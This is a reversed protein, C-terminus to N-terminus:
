YRLNVGVSSVNKTYQAPIFNSNNKVYRHSIYANFRDNVIYRLQLEGHNYKDTRRATVLSGTRIDSPDKYAGYRFRYNALLQLKTNYRYTYNLNFTMFSKDVFYYHVTKTSSFKEYFFDSDVIHQQKAYHVGAGAGYSESNMGSYLTTYDRQSFKLKSTFLLNSDLQYILQPTTVFEDFLNQDLYHIHNYAVPVLFTYNQTYYGIGASLGGILTDYFHASSNNQYYANLDIQTFWGGKEEFDNIYTINANLKSFLTSIEKLGVNFGYYDNLIDGSTSYNVNSDYGGAITARASLSTLSNDSAVANGNLSVQLETRDSDAYIKELNAKAEQNEPDLILVREYASMAEEQQGLQQASKAWLLHLQADGYEDTSSKIEKLAAQYDKDKYLIKAKQLDAQLSLSLLVLLLLYKHLM